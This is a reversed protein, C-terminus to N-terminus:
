ALHKKLKRQIMEEVKGKFPTLLLPLDIVVEIQSGNPNQGVSVEAKFQSGTVFGKMQGDNFQCKINNDMKKLDHDTEFFNKIKALM